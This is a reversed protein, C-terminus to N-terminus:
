KAIRARWRLEGILVAWLIPGLNYTMIPVALLPGAPGYLFTVLFTAVGLILESGTMLLSLSLAYGYAGLRGKPSHKWLLWALPLSTLAYVFFVSPVYPMTKEAFTSPTRVISLVRPVFLALPIFLLASALAFGTANMRAFVSTARISVARQNQNM